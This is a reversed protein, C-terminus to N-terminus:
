GIAFTFEIEVPIGFPLEAVGVAARAGVGRKGFVEALLDSAGNVVAPQNTFGPASAVYGATHAVQRIRDLSGLRAKAAALANLACLRAADYAQEQTIEAGVKGQYAIRGERLPGQGSVFLFGGAEVAPAYTGAPRPAPPLEIGLQQLKEEPTM